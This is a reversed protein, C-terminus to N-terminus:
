LKILLTLCKELGCRSLYGQRLLFLQFDNLFYTEPNKESLFYELCSNIIGDNYNQESAVLQSILKMQIDHNFEELVGLSNLKETLEEEKLGENAIRLLLQQHDTSSKQKHSHYQSLQQEFESKGKKGNKESKFIFSSMKISYVKFWISEFPKLTFIKPFRAKLFM